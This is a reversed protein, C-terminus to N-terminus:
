VIMNDESVAIIIVDIADLSLKKQSRIRKDINYRYLFAKSFLERVQAFVSESYCNGIVLVSKDSPAEPNVTALNMNDYINEEVSLYKGNYPKFSTLKRRKDLVLLTAYCADVDMGQVDQGYKIESYEKIQPFYREQLIKTFSKILPQLGIKGYLHIDHKLFVDKQKSLASLQEFPYFFYVNSYKSLSKKIEEGIKIDSRNAYYKNWYQHYIQARNPILFFYVDISKNQIYNLFNEANETAQEVVMKKEYSGFDRTYYFPFLWGNDGEFAMENEIRKMLVYQLRYYFRIFEWRYPFHDKLYNEYQKDLQVNFGNNRSFSFLTALKRNEKNSIDEKDLLFMSAFCLLFFCVCFLFRLYQVVKVRMFEQMIHSRLM